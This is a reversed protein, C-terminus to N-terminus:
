DLLSRYDRITAPSDLITGPVARPHVMAVLEAVCAVLVLMDAETDTYAFFCGMESDFRVRSVLEGHHKALHRRVLDEAAYNDKVDLAYALTCDQATFRPLVGPEIGDDETYEYWPLEYGTM